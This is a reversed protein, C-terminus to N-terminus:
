EDPEPEWHNKDSEEGTGIVCHNDCFENENSSNKCFGCRNVITKITEHRELEEGLRDNEAVVLQIENHLDEAMRSLRTLEICVTCSARQFMAEKNGCKVCKM